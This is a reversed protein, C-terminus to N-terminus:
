CSNRTVELVGDMNQLVENNWFRLVKFGNRILYEDRKADKDRESAHQGGDVEIVGRKEFCVFDVIYNDIPQQRRFKLGAFQKRRLQTWLLNEVDTSSTRLARAATIM